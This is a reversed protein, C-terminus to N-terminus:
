GRQHSRQAEPIHRCADDLLRRANGGLLLEEDAQCLRLARIDDAPQDSGMDFPRDSGLLVHEPGAFAVLDALLARDHTLSDYYLRRLLADPSSATDSRAEPRVEFARQLRGRLALLAGGGHALLVTLGQHRELVGSVVLQAAAIATELPNGVSNWLYRSDLAPVGIGTTTPHVFVVAGTGAAAEWFPTFRDEGLYSGAVSAPVEVGRMGPLTMLFALEAAARDADQLPVAGLGFARGGSDQSALALSENQVRCIRDADAADASVPVLLIWPSLLLHSVGATAAQELMVSVDSFEGTVSTLRRGQFSVVPQGDQQRLVPRWQEPVADTLMGSPIIHCHCDLIV